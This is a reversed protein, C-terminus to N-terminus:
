RRAERAEVAAVPIMRQAGAKGPLVVMQCPLEGSRIMTYVTTISVGLRIAAEIPRIVVPASESM